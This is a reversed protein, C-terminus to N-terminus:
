ASGNLPDRACNLDPVEHLPRRHSLRRLDQRDFDTIRSKQWSARLATEPKANAFIRWALRWKQAYDAL